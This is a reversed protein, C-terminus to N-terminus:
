HTPSNFQLDAVKASIGSNGQVVTAGSRLTLRLTLLPAQQQSQMYMGASQCGRLSECAINVAHAAFHSELNSLPSYM